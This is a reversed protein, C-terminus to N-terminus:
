DFCWAVEGEVMVDVGAMVWVVERRDEGLSISAAIAERRGGELRYERERVLWRRCFMRAGNRWAANRVCLSEMRRQDARLFSAGVMVSAMECPADM